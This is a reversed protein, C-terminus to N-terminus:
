KETNARFLVEESVERRSIGPGEYEVRLSGPGQNNYFQVELGHYGSELLAYGVQCFPAHHGDNDVIEHGDIFLKDGNDSTTYFTYMGKQGVKILGTLKLGVKERDSVVKDTLLNTFGSDVADHRKFDPLQEWQGEYIEYAVGNVPNEVGVAEQYVKKRLKTTHIASPLYTTKFARSKVTCFDETITIPGVYKASNLEPDSGDMTYRIDSDESGCVLTLTTEGDFFIESSRIEDKANTKASIAKVMMLLSSNQRKLSENIIEVAEITTGAFPELLAGDFGNDIWNNVIAVNQAAFVSNYLTNTEGAKIQNRLVELYGEIRPRYYFRFMEYVDNDCYEGNVSGRRISKSTVPNTGPM